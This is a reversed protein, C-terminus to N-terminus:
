QDKALRDESHDDQKMLTSGGAWLAGVPATAKEVVEQLQLLAIGPLRDKHAFCYDRLCM